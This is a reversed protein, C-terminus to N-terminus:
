SFGFLYKWLLIQLLLLLKGSNWVVNPNDKNSVRNAMKCNRQKQLNLYFIAKTINCHTLCPFLQKEDVIWNKLNFFTRLNLYNMYFHRFNCNKGNYWINALLFANITSLLASKYANIPLIALFNNNLCFHGCNELFNDALMAQMSAVKEM